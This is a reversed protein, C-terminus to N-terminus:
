PYAAISIDTEYIYLTSRNDDPIFFFRLGSETNLVYFPNQNMSRGRKSWLQIPVQNVPADIKLGNLDIGGLSLSVGNKGPKGFKKLGGMLIYPTGSLLQLDQFDVFHNPNNRAIPKGPEIPVGDDNTDWRYFTRSGWNVGLLVKLEPHHLLGGLHDEFHFMKEETMTEPDVRYVTSTSSPKYEALAIWLFKGDFDMGSPHYRPGDAWKLHRLLNGKQDIEFLHGLGEGKSRNIVQVSTLYIRDGIVSMGQPHYTNFKLPVSDKLTYRTGHTLTKFKKAIAEGDNCLAPTSFMLGMLFIGLVIHKLSYHSPM